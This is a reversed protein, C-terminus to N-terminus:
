AVVGMRSTVFSGNPTTFTFAELCQFLPIAMVGAPDTPGNLV